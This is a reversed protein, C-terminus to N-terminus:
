KKLLNTWWSFTFNMLLYMPVYLPSLAFFLIIKIPRGILKTIDKMIM